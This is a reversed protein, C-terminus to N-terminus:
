IEGGKAQKEWGFSYKKRLNLVQYPYKNNVTNIYYAVSWTGFLSTTASTYYRHSYSAQRSIYGENLKVLKRM